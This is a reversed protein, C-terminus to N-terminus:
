SPTGIDVFGSDLGSAVGGRYMRRRRELLSAIFFWRLNNPKGGQPSEGM